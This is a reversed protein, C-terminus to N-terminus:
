IQSPWSKRRRIEVLDRKTKIYHCCVCLTAGNSVTFRLEPYLSFPKIHDANIRGGVKGCVLCTYRDREFVAKRWVRYEFCKRIDQNKSTVGGRWNYHKVGTAYNGRRIQGTMFERVCARSCCSGRGSPALYFPKRCIKCEVTTGRKPLSKRMNSLFTRAEPHTRYYEKKMESLHYRVADSKVHRTSFTSYFDPRQEISRMRSEIRKRIWEPRQKRGRLTKAHNEIAEPTQKYGKPCGVSSM